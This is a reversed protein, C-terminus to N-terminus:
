GRLTMQSGCVEAEVGPGFVGVVALVFFDASLHGGSGVGFFDTGGVAVGAYDEFAAGDVGVAM